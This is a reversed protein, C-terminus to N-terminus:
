PAQIRRRTSSKGTLTQQFSDDIDAHIDRRVIHRATHAVGGAQLLKICHLSEQPLSEGRSSLTCGPLSLQLHYSTIHKYIAWKPDM